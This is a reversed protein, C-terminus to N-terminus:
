KMLLAKNRKELNGISLGGKDKAHYVVEWSVLHEGGVQDGGVWFFDRMIKEMSNLVSTPARFLTLYYIPISSLVSHILTLRDGRSLSKEM